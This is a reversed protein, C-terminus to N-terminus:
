HSENDQSDQGTETEAQGLAAAKATWESDPYKKQLYGLVERLTIERGGAQHLNRAVLFFREAEEDRIRNLLASGKTLVDERAAAFDRDGPFHRLARNCTEELTNFQEPTNLFQASKLREKIDDLWERKVKLIT